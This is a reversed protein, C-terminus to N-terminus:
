SKMISRLHEMAEQKESKYEGHQFGKYKAFSEKSYVSVIERGTKGNVQKVLWYDGWEKEQYGDEDNSFFSLLFDQGYKPQKYLRLYKNKRKITM